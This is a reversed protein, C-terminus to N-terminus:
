GDNRVGRLKLYNELAAKGIKARSWDLKKALEDVQGLMEPDVDIGIRTLKTEPM